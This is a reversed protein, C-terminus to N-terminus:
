YYSGNNLGEYKRAIYRQEIELDALNRLMVRESQQWVSDNFVM